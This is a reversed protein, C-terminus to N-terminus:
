VLRHRCRRVIWAPLWGVSHNPVATHLWILGHQAMHLGTPGDRALQSRTVGYPGLRRRRHGNLGVRDMCAGSAMNHPRILVYQHIHRWPTGHFAMRVCLIVITYSTPWHTHVHVCVCRPGNPVVRDMCAGSAMNHPRIFVYQHIHRWQTGYSPM